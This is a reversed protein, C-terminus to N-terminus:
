AIDRQKRAPPSAPADDDARNKQNLLETTLFWAALMSLAVHQHWGTWNRVQYDALGCESKARRLNEEIRYAQKIVRAYEYLDAPENSWSLYYDCRPRGNDERWKSVILTEQDGTENDIKVRVRCTMLKMTLWGKHDQRLKVTNWKKAPINKMWENMSVFDREHKEGCHICVRIRTDLDMIMMNSPAAFMYPENQTRLKRRLWPAKGMEVHGTIWKHPLKKGRGNIMEWAQQHRNKKVQHQKPISAKACRTKNNIWEEPLYLRRDALALKDRGSYALFTALQCNETKGPRGCGQRHVGAYEKGKRPFSAPVLILIGDGEGIVGAIEETLKDLVVEDNWVSQGIFKQLEQRDTGHFGAISEINNQETGSLLERLYDRSQPRESRAHLHSLFPSVFEDFRHLVPPSSCAFAYSIWFFYRAQLQAFVKPLWPNEEWSKTWPDHLLARLMDMVIKEIWAILHGPNQDMEGLRTYEMAFSYGVRAFVDTFGEIDNYPIMGKHKLHSLFDHWGRRTEQYSTGFIIKAAKVNCRQENLLTRMVQRLLGTEEDFVLATKPPGAPPADHFDLQQVHEHLKNLQRSFVQFVDELIAEKSPYHNYVSPVKVDAEDAIDRVSVNCYFNRSFLKSAALFIKRKTEPYTNTSM